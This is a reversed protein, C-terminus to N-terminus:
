HLVTGSEGASPTEIEISAEEVLRPADSSLMYLRVNDPAPAGLQRLDVAVRAVGIEATSRPLVVPVIMREDSAKRLVVPQEVSGERRRFLLGLVADSSVRVRSLDLSLDILPSSDPRPKLTASRIVDGQTVGYEAGGLTGSQSAVSYLDESRYGDGNEDVVLGLPSEGKYTLHLVRQRPVFRVAIGYRDVEDYMLYGGDVSISSIASMSLHASSPYLYDAALYNEQGFFPALGINDPFGEFVIATKNQMQGTAHLDAYLKSRMQYSQVWAAAEGLDARVFLELWPVFVTLTVLVLGCSVVIASWRNWYLGTVLAGVTSLTLAIGVSPLLTHRPSIFWLYAPLYALFVTAAAAIGVVLLHMERRLVVTVSSRVNNRLARLASHGVTVVVILATLSAVATAILGDEDTGTQLATRITEEFIPGVSLSGSVRINYLVHELSANVLTPGSAPNIKLLVYLLMLGAYLSATVTLARYAKLRLSRLLRIPVLLALVFLSQDYTFLAGGFLVVEAFRSVISIGNTSNGHADRAVVIAYGLLFITSVLNMPAASLWFHTEGHTPFFAYIVAAALSWVRPLGLSRALVYVLAVSFADLATQAYHLKGLSSPDSGVLLFLVQQWIIHLNRGPVYEAASRLTQLLDQHPLQVLFGADDSYFGLSSARRAFVLTTMGCVLLIM